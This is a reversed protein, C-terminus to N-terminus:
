IKKFFFTKTFTKKFFIHINIKYESPSYKFYTSFRLYKKNTYLEQNCDYGKSFYIDM